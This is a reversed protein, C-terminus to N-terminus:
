KQNIWSTPDLFYNIKDNDKGKQWADYEKFLKDLDVGNTNSVKKILTNHIKDENAQGEFIAKLKEDKFAIFILNLNTTYAKEHKFWQSGKKVLTYCGTTKKGDQSVFDFKVLAYQVGATEFEWKCRLAYFNRTKDMTKMKEYYEPKRAKIEGGISNNKTWEFSAESLLSAFVTEPSLNKAESLSKFIGKALYNPEYVVFKSEAKNQQSLIIQEGKPDKQNQSFASFSLIIFFIVFKIM